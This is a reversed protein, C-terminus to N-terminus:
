RRGGRGHLREAYRSRGRVGKPRPEPLCKEDPVGGSKPSPTDVTRRCAALALGGGLTAFGLMTPQGWQGNVMELFAAGCLLWPLCLGNGLARYASRLVTFALSLRLVIYALGLIGGLELVIRAWEGEALLFGQMGTMLGAGVNTGMGIGSGLLPTHFVAALAEPFEKIYRMLIGEHIGGGEKFRQKQAALGESFVPTLELLVWVAMAGFALPKFVSSFQGAGLMSAVLAAAIVLCVAVVAARSGSVALGLGLGLGGCILVWKAYVKRQLLAYLVFASLYTLYSAFGTVFSFTGSARVKGRVSVMQMADAGGIAKNVWADHPSTFQRVALLAMPLAMAMMWWGIQRVDREDFARPIVFILPLHFFNARVGFLAVLPHGHGAFSAMFTLAAMICSVAIIGGRPFWGRSGALVYIALVVPDRAVLLPTALSPLVWKRLAGEFILLWFYLWILTRISKGHDM